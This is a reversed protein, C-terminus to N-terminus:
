PSVTLTFTWTGSDGKTDSSGGTVAYTGPALSTSATIVGTSGVVVQASAGSVTETFGVTGNGNGVTLQGSYGAENAVTAATPSNQTLVVATVTLAFSWSGSDGRGDHDTGSVTYTAAAL